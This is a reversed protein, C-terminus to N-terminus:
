EDTAIKALITQIICKKFLSPFSLVYSDPDLEAKLINCPKRTWKQKLTYYKTNLTLM